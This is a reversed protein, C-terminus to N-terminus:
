QVIRQLKLFFSDLAISLSTSRQLSLEAERIFASVKELPLLLAIQNKNELEKEYDKNILLRRNGKLFILHLDRYWSYIIQFVKKAEELQILAGKGNVEKEIADRHLASLYEAPLQSLQNNAEKEAQEKIKEIKKVLNEIKKRLYIYSRLPGESLLDLVDKRLNDKGQKVFKLAKGLSGEALHSFFASESDELAHKEQLYNKIESEKLPEFYLVRCRSIITPLISQLSHTLLIILTKSPPEEFAKLLANSSYSHMRDADEIIFVKWESAYPPLYVQERFEKLSQLSHLGVKGEPRLWHIDPHEWGMKLRDDKCPAVIYRALVSAFLSKGIGELGTFLFAQGITGKELMIQMKKKIAAHGIIDSFDPYLVETNM